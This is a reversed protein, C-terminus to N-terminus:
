RVHPRGEVAAALLPPLEDRLVDLLVPALMQRNAKFTAALVDAEAAHAPRPYVRRSDQVAQQLGEEFDGAVHLDALDKVGLRVEWARVFAEISKGRLLSALRLAVASVFREGAQDPDRLIYWSDVCEVHEAMLSGATSAGPFGLCPQGHFWAAWCNSEGEVLYCLGSRNAQDLRWLGYLPLPRPTGTKPWYSGDKARLATRLRDVIPEGNTDYYPIGVGGSNPLDYLEIETRLFTEPIQKAAALAAVTIRPSGM